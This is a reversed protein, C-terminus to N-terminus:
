EKYWSNGVTVDVKLPVCLTYASEMEKRILSEVEKVESDPIDFVLEDHVQLIMLSELKKQELECQIRIMAIKIIDAASGQIPANIAAREAFQRRMANGSNIDPFYSRRGLLTTLYGDERAKKKQSELYEKVKEYRDFYSDIFTQAESVSIGLGQALGFGSVGYVISFNVTKAVTRMERTVEKPNVGYLIAATFEHVDLDDHFAQILRPDGSVHALIRLEVQSYDASLIKRKKGRPVFARRIERGMETKIPINQLNPESSSLRGTSTVAQNFSTHVLTTGPEMLSPLADAYTSKLKAIERYELLRKPLEYNQALKELVDADTSYGTKTRKIIPLKLKTFLIDSLQKTSNINFEEGAERYIKQTLVELASGLKVSLKSLLDRDLAVGNLEMQALVNVLPMEVQEFLPTLNNKKLLTELPGVLRMVCDADETAYEAIRELPVLDTTIQKRGSGILEELKIKRVNLYELAIDDLNHNFKSPNVLYSAVMTDFSVGRLELGHRKFVLYDYKINQGYKKIKENALIPAIKKQVVELAIGPGQHHRSAVPVYYAEKPKISFSMGVLHANFPNVSTTETDVSIAKAKSLKAALRDLLEVTTVTEFTRDSKQSEGSGAWEKLLTRFEFHKILSILEEENPGAMKLAELNVDIPVCRDLTALDKSLEAISENERLVRQRAAGAVQDVHQYVGALSDHARILEIATKEGIGPVGPINDSADGALGLVDVVRDPGLGGFREKVGERDVVTEKYTNFVKIRDNVLQLMDKDGTAILTDLGMKEAQTAITAILDDAEYGPKEFISIGYAGVLAKIHPMQEQLEDPMPKRHAKYAEYRQHRFTPEKRDFCVAVYNPKEERILKRLMTMFGYIANTPEGKSNSLHRIAYFARYCLGQGDVLLLRERM